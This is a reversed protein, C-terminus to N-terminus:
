PLSTTTRPLHSASSLHAKSAEDSEPGPMRLSPPCARRPRMDGTLWALGERRLSSCLCRTSSPLVRITLRPQKWTRRRAQLLRILSRAARARRGRVERGLSCNRRASRFCTMRMMRTSLSDLAHFAVEHGRRLLTPCDTPYLMLRSATLVRDTLVLRLRGLSSVKTTLYAELGNM